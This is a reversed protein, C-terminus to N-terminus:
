DEIKLPNGKSADLQARLRHITQRQEEIANSQKVNQMAMTNFNHQLNLNEKSKSELEEKMRIMEAYNSKSPTQTSLRARDLQIKHKELTEQLSERHANEKAKSDDKLASLELIATEFRKSYVQNDSELDEIKGELEENKHELREFCKQEGNLVQTQAAM